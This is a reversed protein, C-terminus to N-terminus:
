SRLQLLENRCNQFSVNYSDPPGDPLPRIAAPTTNDRAHYCLSPASLQTRGFGQRLLSRRRSVAQVGSNLFQLDLTGAVPLTNHSAM